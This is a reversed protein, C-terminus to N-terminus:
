LDNGHSGRANKLALNSWHFMAAILIRLDSRGTAQRLALKGHLGPQLTRRKLQRQLVAAVRQQATPVAVHFPFRNLMPLEQPSPESPWRWTETTFIM